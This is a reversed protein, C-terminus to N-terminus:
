AIVEDEVMQDAEEPIEVAEADVSEHYESQEVVAEACRRCIVVHPSLNSDTETGFFVAFPPECDAAKVASCVCGGGGVDDNPNVQTIKFNEM